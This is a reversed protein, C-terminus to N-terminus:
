GYVRLGVNQDMGREVVEAEFGVDEIEEAIKSPDWGTGDEGVYQSDYEVIGREALLAVQVSVIGPLQKLM